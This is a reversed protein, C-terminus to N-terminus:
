AVKNSRRKNWEKIFRILESMPMQQLDKSRYGEKKRKDYFDAMFENFKEWIVTPSEAKITSIEVFWNRIQRVLSEPNNNHSKIESNSLDSLAKKYRYQKTELILCKKKNWPAGNYKRCGIDVGLEFPMNFRAIENQRSSQIRSLDHISYQSAEILKYIKTLVAEGSDFTENAIRPNYGLYIITFILPRLLSIYEKDFPCNVFVNKNFRKVARAM